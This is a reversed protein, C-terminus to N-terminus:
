SPSSEPKFLTIPINAIRRTLRKYFVSGFEVVQNLMRAHWSNGSLTFYWTLELAIESCNRLLKPATEPCNRPLKPAIASDSASPASRILLDVRLLWVGVSVDLQVSLWCWRKLCHPRGFEMSLEDADRLSICILGEWRLPLLPLLPLLM